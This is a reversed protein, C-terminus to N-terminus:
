EPRHASDGGFNIRRDVRDRVRQDLGVLEVRDAAQGAQDIEVRFTEVSDPQVSKPPSQSLQCDVPASIAEVFFQCEKQLIAEARITPLHPADRIFQASEFTMEGEIM